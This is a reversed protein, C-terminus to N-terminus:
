LYSQKRRRGFLLWGIGLGLLYAITALALAEAILPLGRSGRNLEDSWRVGSIGETAGVLGTLGPQGGMGQRQFDNAPGTLVASRSLPGRDLSVAIGPVESAAVVERAQRELGGIFAEGGGMPGHYVWLAIWAALLGILSKVTRSM